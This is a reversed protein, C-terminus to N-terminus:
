LCSNSLGVAWSFSRCASRFARGWSWGAGCRVQRLIGDIGESVFATPLVDCFCRSTSTNANRCRACSDRWSSLWCCHIKLKRIKHLGVLESRRCKLHSPNLQTKAHSAHMIGTNAQVLSLEAVQNNAEMLALHSNNLLCNWAQLPTHWKHPSRFLCLQWKKVPLQVIGLQETIKAVHHKLLFHSIAFATSYKTCGRRHM